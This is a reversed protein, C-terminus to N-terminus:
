ATVWSTIQGSANRTFTWVYSGDSVTSIRNSGGRTITLTRSGVIDIESILNGVRTITGSNHVTLDTTRIPVNFLAVTPFIQMPFIQIGLYPFITFIIGGDPYLSFGAFKTEAANYALFDFQGDDISQIIANGSFPNNRPYIKIQSPFGGAAYAILMQGTLNYAGLDVNANAGTYPIYGSLDILALLNNITSKRSLPIGGPNDVIYVLDDVTPNTLETLDSVKSSM